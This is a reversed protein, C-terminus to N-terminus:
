RAFVREFQMASRVAEQEDPSLEPARSALEQPNDIGIGQRPNTSYVTVHAPPAQLPLRFVHSLDAYLSDLGPARVMVILTRLGPHEPHGGVRRVEDAACISGLARGSAVDQVLEWANPRGAAVREVTRASIATLHFEVKRGWRKGLVEIEAPLGDIILPAVVSSGAVVHLSAERLERSV